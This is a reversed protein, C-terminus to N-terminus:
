AGHRAGIGHLDIMKIAFAAFCWYVLPLFNSLLAYCYTLGMMIVVFTAVNLGMAFAKWYGDTSINYLRNALFFVRIPMIFYALTGLLGIQFMTYVFETRGYGLQASLHDASQQNFRSRVLEGPGYGLFFSGSGGDIALELSKITAAWRGHSVGGVENMNYNYAYELVGEYGAERKGVYRGIEDPNLTVVFTTAAIFAGAALAFLLAIDRSQFRVRWRVMCMFLWYLLVPGLYFIFGRKGGIVSFGVFAAAMVVTWNTRKYVQHFCFLFPLAVLPLVTSLTGGHIGAYTGVAMEGQGYIMFKVSAVPLQLLILWYIIRILRQIESEVFQTNVIILFLLVYRVMPRLMLIAGAFNSKNLIASLVVIIFLMFLEFVFYLRVSRNLVQVIITKVLLIVITIEILWNAQDPLIGYDSLLNGFTSVFLIVVIGATRSRFFFFLVIPVYFLVGAVSVLTIIEPTKWLDALM